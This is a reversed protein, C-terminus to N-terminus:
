CEVMWRRRQQYRAYLEFVGHMRWLRWLRFLDAKWKYRQYMEFRKMYKYFIEESSYKYLAKLLDIHVQHYFLSAPLKKVLDYLSWFGTDFCCLNRSINKLSKEFFTEAPPFYDILSYIGLIAYMNGNLISSVNPYEYIWDQKDVCHSVLGNFAKKAGNLYQQEQTEEYMTVLASVTFGQALGGVWPNPFDEYFPFVFHHWIAGDDEMNDLLWGASATDYYRIAYCAINTAHPFFDQTYPIRTFPVGKMMKFSTKKGIDDPLLDTYWIRPTNNDKM